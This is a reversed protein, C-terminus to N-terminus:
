FDCTIHLGEKRLRNVGDQTFNTRKISLRRLPMDTLIPIISDDTDTGTLDLEELRLGALIRINAKLENCFSLDLRRLTEIQRLSRLHTIYPCSKLILRELPMGELFSLGFSTFLGVIRTSSLTEDNLDYGISLERLPLERIAELDDATVIFPLHLSSIEAQRMDPILSLFVPKNETTITKIFANVKSEFLEVMYQLAPNARDMNKLLGLIKKTTELNVEWLRVENYLPDLTPCMIRNERTIPRTHYYFADIGSQQRLATMHSHILNFHDERFHLDEWVMLQGTGPHTLTETVPNYLTIFDFVEGRNTEVPLTMVRGTRPDVYNQLLPDHSLAEPM